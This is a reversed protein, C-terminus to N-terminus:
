FYSFMLFLQGQKSLIWSSLTDHDHATQAHGKCIKVDMSKLISSLTINEGPRILNEEKASPLICLL